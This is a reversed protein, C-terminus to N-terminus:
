FYTCSFNSSLICLLLKVNPSYEEHMVGSPIRFPICLGMEIPVPKTINSLSKQQYKQRKVKQHSLFVELIFLM